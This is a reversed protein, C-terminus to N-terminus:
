DLLLEITEAEGRRIREADPGTVAGACVATEGNKWLIRIQNVTYKGPFCAKGPTIHYILKTDSFLAASIESRGKTLCAPLVPAPRFTLTGNEATFLNKGHFMIQWMSLFEATSGSLRAVFGKGHIAEDPNASSAIFSSNELPSRGYTEEKLFPVLMSEMDAAFDEYLGSRLEELLYKYEMHLWISENELWGPTFAHARGIEFSAAALNANVKYMHLKRDFLPSAKVADALHRRSEDTMPLRMCRVQGELFLPMPVRKAAAPHIGEADKTYETVDYAFYTPYLGGNEKRTEELATEARELWCSLMQVAERASIVRKEGSVTVKIKERYTERAATLRQWRTFVDEESGLIDTTDCALAYVETMVEVDKGSAELKERLFRILRCLEATEAVSSGMLGPLGNLADYWGPKGGEMEIGIGGMDFSAAKVAALSFLKEALTATMINGATDKLVTGQVPVTELFAYQRLGRDTERYRKAAPLIRVGSNYWTYTEDGYLLDKEKDPFISLYSEIQDLNYTWHDTWYGEGFTASVTQDSNELVLAFLEEEGIGTKEWDQVAMRVEGPTFASSLLKEAAMRDKESILTLIGALADKKLVFAICEVVLPNYGDAQLLDFFFHINRDGAAPDFMVDCRRNQNVDRFNGNGQSYYEARVRFANYDREPDGHKRSYLYTMKGGPLPYPVGGRLLNDLYTQRCYADFVPDGTETAVRDTLADTLAAAERFKAEMEPGNMLKECLARAKTKSEAEGILMYHTRSEGPQLTFRDGCFVAPLLNQLCEKQKKWEDWEASLFGEPVQMDSRCGFIHRPDSFFPLSTGDERCAAAFRAGTVESMESSDAMSSRARFFMVPSDTEEAQMWAKATQTMEKISHWDMGYPILEPAGDLMDIEAPKTGTNTVTVRRMLGALREGPLVTCCVDCRIGTDTDTYSLSLSNMECTMSHPMEPDSFPEAYAGNVRMFTRFGTTKTNRYAQHAPYFEMVSDNKGDIGFSCIGQGRNVYFCWMPIGMKGAIGPLFSCFPEKKMYNEIVFGTNKVPM